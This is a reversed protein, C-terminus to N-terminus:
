RTRAMVEEVLGSATDFLLATVERIPYLAPHAMLAEVDDRLAAGHDTIALFEIAAGTRAMLEGDTTGSLGCGTHEMVVVSEVGLEHASLVLSRVVDPTVRGGANRIVHVEGVDLGFVALPDIRADMCTVIALHRSPRADDIRRHNQAYTRNAPLL